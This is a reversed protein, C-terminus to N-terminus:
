KYGYLKREKIYALVDRNIYNCVKTYKFPYEKFLNRIYTSSIDNLELGDLYIHPDEMYWKDHDLNDFKRPFVIFPILGILGEYKYWRNITEANDQGIVLKFQVDKEKYEGILNSLVNYTQGVLKNKIEYDSAIIPINTQSNLDHAVLRCMHLRDEASVLPKNFVNEYCPMLWVEDAYNNNAIFYVMQSHGFHIPNFSGGLIAITKM